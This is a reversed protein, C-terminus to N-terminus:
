RRPRQLGAGMSVDYGDRRLADAVREATRKGLRVAMLVNLRMAM